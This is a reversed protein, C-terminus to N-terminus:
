YWHGAYVLPESIAVLNGVSSLQSGLHGLSAFGTLTIFPSSERERFFRVGGAQYGQM